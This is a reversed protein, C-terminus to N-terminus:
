IFFDVVLILTRVVRGVDFNWSTKNEGAFVLFAHNILNQQLDLFILLADAFAEQFHQVIDLPVQNM